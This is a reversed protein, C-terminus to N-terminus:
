QAVEEQLNLYSLLPHESTNLLDKTRKNASFLAMSRSHEEQNNSVLITDREEIADLFGDYDNQIHDKIERVEQQKTDIVSQVEQHIQELQEIHAVVAHDMRLINDIQQIDQRHTNSISYDEM